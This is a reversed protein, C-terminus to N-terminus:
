SLAAPTLDPVISSLTGDYDILFLASPDTLADTLAPLARGLAWPLLM